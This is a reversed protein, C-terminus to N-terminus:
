HFHSHSPKGIDVSVVDINMARVTRIVVVTQIRRRGKFPCPPIKIQFVFWPVHERYKIRSRM